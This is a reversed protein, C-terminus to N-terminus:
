KILVKSIKDKLTDPTFPKVIFNSVGAKIAMVLNDKEGEATVMLFPLKKFEASGRLEGLLEIGSMEPMNWDSVVFHIPSGSGHAQKIADLAVKGNEAEVIDSFGMEKLVKIIIKRMVAMDDVVMTKFKAFDSM